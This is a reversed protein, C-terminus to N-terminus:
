YRTNFKSGTYVYAFCQSCGRCGNYACSYPYPDNQIQEHKEADEKKEFFKGDSTQYGQKIMKNRKKKSNITEFEEWRNTEQNGRAHNKRSGINRGFLM